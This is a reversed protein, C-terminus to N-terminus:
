SADTYRRQPCFDAYQLCCTHMASQSAFAHSTSHRVVALEFQVTKANDSTIRQEFAKDLAASVPKYAEVFDGISPNPNPVHNAMYSPQEEGAPAGM